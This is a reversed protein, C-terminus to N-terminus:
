QIPHRDCTVDHRKQAVVSAVDHLDSHWLCATSFTGTQVVRKSAPLAQAVVMLAVLVPVGLLWILFLRM